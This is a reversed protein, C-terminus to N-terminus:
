YKGRIHKPVPNSQEQELQILKKNTEALEKSQKALEEEVLALRKEAKICKLDYDKQEADLIKGYWYDCEVKLSNGSLRLIAQFLYEFFKNITFNISSDFLLVNM